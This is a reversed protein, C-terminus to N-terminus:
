DLLSSVIEAVNDDTVVMDSYQEYEKLKEDDLNSFDIKQIENIIEESFRYKLVKNNAYVAYPPVDHAVISGAGIVCGKGLTVGSLVTVGYGIWVDDEVIIPGKSEAENHKHYVSNSFPYTSAKKYNHEGDLIFTVNSALSCYNGIQLYSEKNGYTMVNVVGYTGIGVTVKNLPFLQTIETRNHKNAKAWRMRQKSLRIQRIIPSLLSRLFSLM